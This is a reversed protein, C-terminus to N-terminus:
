RGPVHRSRTPDVSLKGWFVAKGKNDNNDRWEPSWFPFRELPYLVKVCECSVNVILKVTFLSMFKNILGVIVTV